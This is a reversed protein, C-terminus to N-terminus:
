EPPILSLRHYRLEDHLRLLNALTRKRREMEPAFLHQLLPHEEALHAFLITGLQEITMARHLAEDISITTRGLTFGCTPKKMLDLTKLSGLFGPEAGESLALLAPDLERGASLPAVETEMRERFAREPLRTLMTEYFGQRNGLYNRIM